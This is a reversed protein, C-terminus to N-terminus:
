NPVPLADPLVRERRSRMAVAFLGCLAAFSLWLAPADQRKTYFILGTAIAPTFGGFLATALSYALSFGATRVEVPMIETLYVVMAGNYSGYLFSLWLEVALLGGFSPNAVLWHLAPYATAVTLLTFIVLLPRRGVRDSLAGMIPLWCFNSLGVAVTVLLSQNDPLKLVTRGFTPTYATIMYFSVTTMVVMLTGLVVIQWNEVMSVMIQRINPREKRALFEGTEALSRRILFIVPVILCGIVFPVRWGWSSMQEPTISSTLVTGLLAGFVVAIQQSASQFSVYFGKNGPTAIESLYVSVGGLEVGASFGQLLRGVLVLLPAALGIVAYGPVFAILFTGCAMLGLTLVLGVRRGKRDIYAGLIIAGLPRMLFGAGFTVLAKMQSAFEDGEPFFTAAIFSAYLGYVIFDYMELFNGSTVRLVNAWPPSEPNHDHM